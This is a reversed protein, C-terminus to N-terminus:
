KLSNKKLIVIFEFEDLNIDVMQLSKGDFKFGEM